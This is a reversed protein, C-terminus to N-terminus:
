ILRELAAVIESLTEGAKGPILYDSISGTLATPEPNIEVVTAGSEKSIVPIFSAARDGINRYGAYRRM